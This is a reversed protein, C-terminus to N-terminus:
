SPKDSLFKTVDLPLNHEKAYRIPELNYRQFFNGIPELTNDEATYGEWKVLFKLDKNKGRHKLVKKVNWEDPTADPDPVTRQHYYLPKPNGNFTDEVYHKMYSSHARITGTETIQPEYSNEGVRQLVVAPGLWRSDLKDGSGEPRRYWVQQGKVFVEVQPRKANEAKARKEHAENLLRAVREDMTHMRHLFAQADECEKSPKYPLNPLNRERGFLIQYPTM